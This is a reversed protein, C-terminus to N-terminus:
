ERTTSEGRLSLLARAVNASALQCALRIGAYDPGVAPQLIFRARTAVFGREDVESGCVGWALDFREFHSIRGIPDNSDFPYMGMRLPVIWSGDNTQACVGSALLEQQGKPLVGGHEVAYYVLARTIGAGDRLSFDASTTATHLWIAFGVLASVFVVAGLRFRRRKVRSPSLAESFM